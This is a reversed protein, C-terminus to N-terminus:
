QSYTTKLSFPMGWIYYSVNIERVPHMGLATLITVQLEGTSRGNLQKVTFDGVQLVDGDMPTVQAEIMDATVFCNNRLRITYTFFQYNEPQDLWTSSTYATGLVSGAEVQQRLYAFLEPQTSAEVAIVSVSQVTMEATMYLAGIGALCAILVVVSIIAFAKM